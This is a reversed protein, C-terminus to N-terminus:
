EQAKFDAYVDYQKVHTLYKRVQFTATVRSEIRKALHNRATDKNFSLEPSGAM